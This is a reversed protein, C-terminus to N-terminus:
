KFDESHKHHEIFEQPSAFVNERDVPGTVVDPRRPSKAINARFTAAGACQFTGEYNDSEEITKHCMIPFDSQALAIWQEATLPGLYGAWSERRWPCESCPSKIAPPLEEPVGVEAQLEKEDPM